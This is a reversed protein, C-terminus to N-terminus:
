EILISRILPHRHGRIFIVFKLNSTIHGWTLISIAALVAATGEVM